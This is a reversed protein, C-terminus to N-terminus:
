LSVTLADLWPDIFRGCPATRRPARSVGETRMIKSRLWPLYYVRLRNKRGSITVLINQRELVAMQSFRRRTILSYVASLPLLRSLADNASFCVCVCVCTRM